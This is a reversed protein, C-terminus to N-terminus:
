CSRGCCEGKRNRESSSLRTAAPVAAELSTTGSRLKVHLVHRKRRTRSLSGSHLDIPQQRETESRDRILEDEARPESAGNLFWRAGDETASADTMLNRAQNATRISAAIGNEHGRIRADWRLVLKLVGLALLVVSLVVDIDAVLSAMEPSKALLKPAFYLIPVIITLADTILVLPVLSKKRATHTKEGSLQNIREQRLAALTSTSLQSGIM